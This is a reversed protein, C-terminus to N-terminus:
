KIVIKKISGNNMKVINMGKQLCDHKKGDLSFIETIGEPSFENREIGTVEGGFIVNLYDKATTNYDKPTTFYARFPKVTMNGTNRKLENGTFGYADYESNESEKVLEYTGHMTWGPVWSGLEITGAAANAPIEISEDTSFDIEAPTQGETKVIYPKGAVLETNKVKDFILADKTKASLQYFTCNELGSTPKFPLTITSYQASLTRKYHIGGNFTNASTAEFYPSLADDLVLTATYSTSNEHLANTGMTPNSHFTFTPKTENNGNNVYLGQEGIKELTSPLVVSEM